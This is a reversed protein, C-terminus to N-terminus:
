VLSRWHSVLADATREWTFTRAHAMGKGRRPDDASSELAAAIGAAVDEPSQADVEFGFGAATEAQVSDRAVVVPTGAALAELTPLGFGESTSLVAACGAARLLAPVLREPVVGTLILHPHRGGLATAESTALGTCVVPTRAAETAALLLDLRKKPRTGGLCLVFPRGPLGPLATALEERGITAPGSFEPGVGWPVVRLKLHSGLDHAVTASPTIVLAARSRGLRAWLRHVAGANEGAGHRWPAEHVTQVVPMPARLPFASTWSHLVDARGRSAERVLKTQRWLALSIGEPPLIPVIDVDGRAELAGLASRVVRQVGLPFPRSVPSLDLAIRM